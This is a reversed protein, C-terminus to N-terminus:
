KSIKKKKKGLLKKVPKGFESPRKEEEDESPKAEEVPPMKEEEEAEQKEEVTAPASEKVPEAAPAPAPSNSIVKATGRRLRRLIFEPLPGNEDTFVTGASIVRGDAVKLNVLLQVKM